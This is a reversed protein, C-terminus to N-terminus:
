PVSIVNSLTGPAGADASRIRAQVFVPGAHGVLDGISELPLYWRGREDLRGRMEYLSALYGHAYSEARADGISAAVTAADAFAWAAEIEDAAEGAADSGVPRRTLAKSLGEALKDRDFEERSGRRARKALYEATMLASLKEAVATVVLQNISVGEQKALTKLQSHISEPLRLSMTSM